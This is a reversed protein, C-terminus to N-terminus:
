GLVFREDYQVDHHKLLRLYEEDFTQSAHHQEQNQIYKRVNEVASYSVSFSGFGEQWAFDIKRSFTKRIWMSSCSKIDRLLASFKDLLSFEILMHVHDPMGGIEILKGKYNKVVGGLYSYLREQMDQEIWSNRSKTSWVLHFYHVRYSHTM